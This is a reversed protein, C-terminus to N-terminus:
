SAARVSVCVYLCVCPCFNVTFFLSDVSPSLTRSTAGAVRDPERRVRRTCSQAGASLSAPPGRAVKRPHTQSGCTDPLFYMICATMASQCLHGSQRWNAIVSEFVTLCVCLRVFLCDVCLNVGSGRRRLQAQSPSHMLRMGSAQRALGSATSQPQQLPRLPSASRGASGMQVRFSSCPCVSQRVIHVPSAARPGPSVTRQAAAAQLADLRRQEAM